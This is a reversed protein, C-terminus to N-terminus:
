EGPWTEPDPEVLALDIATQDLMDKLEDYPTVLKKNLEDNVQNALDDPM